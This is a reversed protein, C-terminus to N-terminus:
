QRETHIHYTNQNRYMIKICKGVSLLSFPEREIKIKIKKKKQLICLKLKQVNKNTTRKKTMVM